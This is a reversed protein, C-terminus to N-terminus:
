LHPPLHGGIMEGQSTAFRMSGRTFSLMVWLDTFWQIFRTQQEGKYLPGPPNEQRLYKSIDDFVGDINVLIDGDSFRLIGLGLRSM